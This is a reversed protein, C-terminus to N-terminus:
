SRIEQVVILVYQKNVDPAILIETLGLGMRLFTLDDKWDITRITSAALATFGNIKDAYKKVKREDSSFGSYRMVRGDAPNLVLYGVVGEHKAIRLLVEEVSKIRRERENTTSANFEM